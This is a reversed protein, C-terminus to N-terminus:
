KKDIKINRLVALRPDLVEGDCACTGHNLNQGCNHCLGKCSMNCLVKVPLALMLEQWLLAALNIEVGGRGDPSFRMVEEDVDPDVAIGDRKTIEELLRDHKDENRRRGKEHAKGPALDGLRKVPESPFPEFTDFDHDISIEVEEICRSCPLTVMGELHGRVLCGEEQPLVWVEGKLTSRTKNLVDFEGLNDAWLVPWIEQDDVKCTEGDPKIANVPFWTLQM